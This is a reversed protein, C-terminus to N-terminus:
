SACHNSVHQAEYLDLCQPCLGRDISWSPHELEILSRAAATLREPHRDLSAVPFRCLPCRGTGGDREDGPPGPPTIAFTAVAQHTPVVRDFWEDFTRGARGGLMSFAAAFERSRAARANPHALGARALRGDITVDWLVRYRDRVINDASPGDDSPPLRREYGFAPDLMDAVHMLEHRLLARLPEVELLLSPRLRLALLPQRRGAGDPLARDFLDASEEQRRLARLVRVQAVRGALEAREEIAEEVPRHLGLRVFWRLHAERFAADRREPDEVDYVANRERRFGRITDGPVTREALLVAEEVLDPAYTADIM